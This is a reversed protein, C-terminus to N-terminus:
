VNWLQKIQGIFTWTRTPNVVQADTRRASHSGLSYKSASKPLSYHGNTLTRKDIHTDPEAHGTKLGGLVFEIQGRVLRLNSNTDDHM